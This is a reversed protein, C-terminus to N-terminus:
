AALVFVLASIAKSTQSHPAVNTWSERKQRFHPLFRGGLGSISATTCATAGGFGAVGFPSASEMGAGGTALLSVACAIAVATPAGGPTSLSKSGSKRLTEGMEVGPMKTALLFLRRASERADSSLAGRALLFFVLPRVCLFAGDGDRQRGTDGDLNLVTEGERCLCAVTEGELPENCGDTGRCDNLNLGTETAALPRAITRLLSSSVLGFALLLLATEGELSARQCGDVVTARREGVAPVLDGVARPTDGILPSSSGSGTLGALTLALFSFRPSFAWLALALFSFRPSWPAVPFRFSLGLFCFRPRASSQSFQM